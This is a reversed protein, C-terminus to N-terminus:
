FSTPKNIEYTMTLIFRGIVPVGGQTPPQFKIKAAYAEAAIRLATPGELFRISTPVGDTGVIIEVKVTGTCAGRSPM